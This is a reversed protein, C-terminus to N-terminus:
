TLRDKLFQVIMQAADECHESQWAMGGSKRERSEWLWKSVFAYAEHYTPVGRAELEAVRATLTCDNCPSAESKDETLEKIQNGMRYVQAELEAERNM